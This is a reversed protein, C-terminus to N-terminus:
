KSLLRLVQTGFKLSLHGSIASSVTIVMSGISYALTLLNSQEPCPDMGDVATGTDTVFVTMDVSAQATM